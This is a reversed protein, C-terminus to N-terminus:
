RRSVRLRVFQAPANEPVPATVRVTQVGDAEGLLTSTLGASSWPGAPNAAAEPLYDVETLAAAPRTYSYELVTGNVVARASSPASKLPNAGLAYELLNVM